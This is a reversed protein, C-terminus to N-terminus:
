GADRGILLRAERRYEDDSATLDRVIGLLLRRFTRRAWALETSVRAATLGLDAALAECTPRGADGPGTELDYREFLRYATERDAAGCEERLAAVGREVVSRVWEREFLEEPSLPAGPGRAAIAEEAAGFDPAAPDLPLHTAGGGRKLRAAARDENALHADLCARLFTRFRGKSPDYGAFFEKEVVRAFFGQTLDAADEPPRRWRLRVYTYVPKWYVACLTELARRREEPDGARAAALASQRTTPFAGGGPGPPRPDDM